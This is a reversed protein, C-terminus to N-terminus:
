FGEEGATLAIIPVRSYWPHLCELSGGSLGKELEGSKRVGASGHRWLRASHKHVSGDRRRGNADSDNHRRGSVDTDEAGNPAATPSALPGHMFEGELERIRGTATYGDQFRSPNRDATAWLM